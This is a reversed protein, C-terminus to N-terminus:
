PKKAELSQEVFRELEPEGVVDDLLWNRLYYGRFKKAAYKAQDESMFEVAILDLKRVQVIHASLCGESYATCSVGESMSKPIVFTVSSDAAQAKAFLEEKTYKVEKACSAFLLISSIILLSKM